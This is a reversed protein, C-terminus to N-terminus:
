CSQFKGSTVFEKVEKEFRFWKPILFIIGFICRMGSPAYGNIQLYTSNSRQKLKIAAGVLIDKNVYVDMPGSPFFDV